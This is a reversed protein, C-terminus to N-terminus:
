CMCGSVRHGRSGSVTHWTLGLCAKCPAKQSSFGRKRGRACCVRIQDNFTAGLIVRTPSEPGHCSIMCAERFVPCLLFVTELRVGNWSMDDSVESGSNSRSSGISGNKNLTTTTPAGSSIVSDDLLSTTLMVPTHSM